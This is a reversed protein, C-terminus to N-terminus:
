VHAMGALHFVGDIGDMLGHPLPEAGLDCEAAEDWPGVASRRLLARVRQGQAQLQECLATGIFGGAGTVLYRKHSEFTM